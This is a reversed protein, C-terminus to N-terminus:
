RYIYQHMISVYNILHELMIKPPSKPSMPKLTCIVSCTPRTKGRPGVTSIQGFSYSVNIVEWLKRILKDVLEMVDPEETPTDGALKPHESMSISASFYRPQYEQIM